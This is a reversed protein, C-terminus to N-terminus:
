GGSRRAPAAFLTAFIVAVQGRQYDPWGLLTIGGQVEVAQGAELRRTEAASRTYNRGFTLMNWALDQHGDIIIM